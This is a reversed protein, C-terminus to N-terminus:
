RNMRERTIWIVITRPARLREHTPMETALMSLTVGKGACLRAAPAPAIKAACHGIAVVRGCRNQCKQLHLPPDALLELTLDVPGDIIPDM